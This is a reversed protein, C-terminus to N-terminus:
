RTETYKLEHREGGIELVVSNNKIEVCRIHLRGQSTTIDQEDGVALTRNNIIALRHDLPGSVGKLVLSSIDAFHTQVAQTKVEYPRASTPFFPDRGENPTKPVVFVSRPVANTAAAPASWTGALMASLGIALAATHSITPHKM